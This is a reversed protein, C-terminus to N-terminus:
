RARDAYEPPVLGDLRRGPPNAPPVGGLTAVQPNAYAIGRDTQILVAEHLRDALESVSTPPALQAEPKARGARTLLHNVVTVLAAIERQDTDLDVRRTLSGGVAIGHVQRTLEELVGRQRRHLFLLVLLALALLAFLLCFSALVTMSSGSIGGFGPHPACECPAAM